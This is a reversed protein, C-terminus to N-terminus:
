ASEPFQSWTKGYLTRGARKKGVRMVKQSNFFRVECGDTGPPQEHDRDWPMWEGWQKFFFPTSTVACDRRILEPWAPHMPRAGPGSEGGAIVWNLPQCGGRIRSGMCHPCTTGGGSPHAVSGASCQPVLWRALDLAELLPECSLFRIRAPTALLRPVDRNAEAQNVVSIGLWVNPRPNGLWAAPMMKRANSIRKTLLLWDLEPTGEILGWLKQREGEVDPHNDFVDAMSACFVRPRAAYSGLKRAQRAWRIPEKWHMPGFTRRTSDDGWLVQGPAHRKADREAYCHDCAPSVKACGWWPNFTHDTWEIASNKAM